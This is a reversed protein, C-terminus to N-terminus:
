SRQCRLRAWTGRRRRRAGAPGAGGATQGSGPLLVPVDLIGAALVLRPCGGRRGRRLHPDHLSRGLDDRGLGPPAEPGRLLRLDRRLLRAAALPLRSAPPGRHDASGGSAGCDDCAGLFALPRRRRLAQQAEHFTGPRAPSRGPREPCLRQLRLPLFRCLRCLQRRSDGCRDQTSGARAGPGPREQGMSTRALGDADGGTPQTQRTRAGGGRCGARPAERPHGSRRRRRLRVPGRALRSCRSRFRGCLRLRCPRLSERASCGERRGQPKAHWRLSAGVRIIWSAGGGGRGAGPRRGDSSVVLRGVGRAKRALDLVADDFILGSPDFDMAAGLRRKM